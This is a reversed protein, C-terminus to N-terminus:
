RKEVESLLSTATEQGARRAYEKVIAGALGAITPAEFLSRMPLEVGFGSRIKSLVQSAKLSHGGLVFFNDHVGIREVGLVDTWLGALSAEFASRPAVYSTATSGAPDPLAQRDLKGNRTVPLEALPVFAAPVMYGPLKAGLFSRLEELGPVAGNRHVVYAVLSVDGAPGRPVVAAERLGPHLRLTSEIEGLEIRFGRVKVQADRRGLFEIEGTPRHRVLDGTRYLREGPLEAFPDPVFREATLEPRGLYGRALGAGALCLEGVVGMPVPCLEGDLVAARSGTVARGISPEGPGSRTVAASTSYTTDETPGYLNWVQRVAPSAAYVREALARPLPEGALCVTRVSPSLGGRHVLEAMVSPVTNVLTVRGAAPLDILALADRALIVTGGTCLPAFLEFVSLDFCISTAGLVGALEAPTFTQQAWDVLAAASRHEIM